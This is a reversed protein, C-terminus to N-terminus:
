MERFNLQTSDNKLEYAYAPRLWRDIKYGRMMMMMM